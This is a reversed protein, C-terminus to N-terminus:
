QYDTLLRFDYKLKELANRRLARVWKTSIHLSRAIENDSQEYGDLGYSKQIVEAETKNLLRGIVSRLSEAILGKDPSPSETNTLVDCMTCEANSSLPADMSVYKGVNRMTEKIEEADVKLAKAIEAISPEREYKQELEAITKNIKNIFVIKNLPLRVMRAQKAIAHFISQHIWWKAYSIFKFGRTEDFRQAAKILGINGESILDPLSLGYHQYQKAISIVFRLNAKILTHLAENDGLRIRRALDVEEDLSLLQQKRIDYLYRDLERPTFNKFRYHKM